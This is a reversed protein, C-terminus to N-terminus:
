DSALEQVANCSAALTVRLASIVLGADPLLALVGAQKLVAPGVGVALGLAVLGPAVAQVIVLTIGVVVAPGVLTLHVGVTVSGQGAPLLLTNIRALTGDIGVAAWPVM